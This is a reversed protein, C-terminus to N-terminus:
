GLKVISEIPERKTYTFTATLTKADFFFQANLVSDIQVKVSTAKDATEFYFVFRGVQLKDMQNFGAM